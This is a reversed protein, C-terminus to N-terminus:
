KEGKPHLVVALLFTELSFLQFTLDIAIATEQRWHVVDGFFHYFSKLYLEHNQELASLYYLM